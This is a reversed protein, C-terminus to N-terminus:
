NLGGVLPVKGVQAKEIAKKVAAVAIVEVKELVVPPTKLVYAIQRLSYRNIRLTLLQKFMTALETNSYLNRSKGTVKYFLDANESDVKKLLSIGYSLFKCRDEPMACSIQADKSIARKVKKVINDKLEKLYNIAQTFNLPERPQTLEM